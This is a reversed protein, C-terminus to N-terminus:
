LNKTGHRTVLHPYPMPILLSGGSELYDAERKVIEDKFYWPLVLMCSPNLSRAHEESILEIDTGLTKLGVKKPNRESIYPMKEKGIGFTQLLMNGKTSAGLGLVLNGREIEGNIVKNIKSKYEMIKEHFAVYTEKKDLKLSHEANMLANFRDTPKTTSEHTIMVRVSGGNVANEEADIIELGNQKMLKNLTTLSYYELHENCIDYFNVNRFMAVLYSLQICFIGDEHLAKKVTAVFSNPDDLDYFMACSTFIKVKNNGIAKNLSQETFYDNVIKISGDVGSWDINEAPEIGCRNLNEPFYSIMTCDNAGIDVVYDNPELKVRQMVDTVVTSLDRRMTDSVASRYFYQKYLLDPNVTEKLQLLSCSGCLMLTHPVKIKSLPNNENSEVFTPSLYQDEITIVKVLNESNCVRCSKLNQYVTM